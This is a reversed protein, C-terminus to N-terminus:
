VESTAARAPRGLAPVRLAPVARAAVVGRFADRYFWALAIEAALV